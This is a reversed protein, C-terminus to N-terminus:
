IPWQSAIDELRYDNSYSVNWSIMVTQSEAPTLITVGPRVAGIDSFYVFIAGALNVVGHSM